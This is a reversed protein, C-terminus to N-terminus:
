RDFEEVAQRFSRSSRLGAYESASGGKDRKKATIEIDYDGLPFSKTGLFEAAATGASKTIGGLLSGLFGMIERNAFPGQPQGPQNRIVRSGIGYATPAYAQLHEDLSPARGQISGPVVQTPVARQMTRRPVGSPIGVPFPAPDRLRPSPGPNRIPIAM